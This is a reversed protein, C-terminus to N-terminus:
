CVSLSFAPARLWLKKVFLYTDDKWIKIVKTKMKKGFHEMTFKYYLLMWHTLVFIISKSGTNPFFKLEKEM